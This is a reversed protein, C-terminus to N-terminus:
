LDGLNKKEGAIVEGGQFYMGLNDTADFDKYIKVMDGSEWGIIAQIVDDPLGAKSWSTTLYHRMAHWYFDKGMIRGIKNAWSNFSSVDRHEDPDDRRPFLWISDIDNEERYKMWLDFYPKFTKVLVYMNLMKGQKGRGKSKVKEPTKYLSGFVINDDTFYSVKFRALESKRRGSAAALALACAVEYDGHEVLEALAKNVEAEEIVTKERTPNNVPNEIKRVISRFNPYDEDLIAEVFNSLSSVSAKLRRVRAPSNEHDNLLWNQFNVIDRKTMEIIFRNDCEQLLFVEFIELDNKYGAITAPSRDISKLYDLFEKVLKKNKPNVQELLEPSTIKNMKTKRPTM